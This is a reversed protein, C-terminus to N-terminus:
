PRVRSDIDFRVSRRINPPSRHSELRAPVHAPSPPKATAAKNLKWPAEVRRVPTEDEGRAASDIGTTTGRSSALKRELRELRKQQRAAANQMASVHRPPPEQPHDKCWQRWRENEADKADKRREEAQYYRKRREEQENYPQIHREAEDELRDQIELLELHLRQEVFKRCLAPDAFRIDDASQALVQNVLADFQQVDGDSAPHSTGSVTSTNKSYCEASLDPYHASSSATGSGEGYCESLNRSLIEHALLRARESRTSRPRGGPLM